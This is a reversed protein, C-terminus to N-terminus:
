SEANSIMYVWYFEKWSNVYRTLPNDFTADGNQGTVKLKQGDITVANAEVLQTTLSKELQNMEDFVQGMWDYVNKLAKTDDLLKKIGNIVSDREQNLRSLEQQVQIKLGSYMEQKNIKETFETFTVDKPTGLSQFLGFYVSFIKHNLDRIKMLLEFFTKIYFTKRIEINQETIMYELTKSCKIEAIAAAEDGKQLDSECFQLLVNIFDGSKIELNLTAIHNALNFALNGLYSLRKLDHKFKDSLLTTILPPKQQVLRMIDDACLSEVEHFCQVLPVDVFDERTGESVRKVRDDKLEPSNLFLHVLNTHTLQTFQSTVEKLSKADNIVKTAQNIKAIAEQWTEVTLDFLPQFLKMIPNEPNLSSVGTPIQNFKGALSQTRGDDTVDDLTVIVRGFLAIATHINSMGENDIYGLESLFTMAPNMTKQGMIWVFTDFEPRRGTWSTARYDGQALLQMGINRIEQNFKSSVGESGGLPEPPTLLRMSLLTQIVSLQNLLLYQKLFEPIEKQSLLDFQIKIISVAKLLIREKLEAKQSIKSHKLELLGVIKRLLELALRQNVEQIEGFLSKAKELYFSFLEKLDEENLTLPYNLKRPSPPSPTKNLFLVDHFIGDYQSKTDLNQTASLLKKM